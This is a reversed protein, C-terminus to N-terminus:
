RRSRATRSADRVNWLWLALSLGWLVVAQAPSEPWLGHWLEAASAEEWALTTLLGSAAFIVVGRTWSEAYLQGLGPLWFSLTAALESSKRM